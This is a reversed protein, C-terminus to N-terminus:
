FQHLLYVLVVICELIVLSLTLGNYDREGRAFINATKWYVDEANRLLLYEAVLRDCQPASVSLQLCAYAVRHRSYKDFIATQSDLAIVYKGRRGYVHITKHKTFERWLRDPLVQQLLRESRDIASPAQDGWGLITAM